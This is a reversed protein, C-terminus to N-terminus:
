KLDHNFYVDNVFYILSLYSQEILVYLISRGTRTFSTKLGVSLVTPLRPFSLVPSM